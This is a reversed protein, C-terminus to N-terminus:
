LMGTYAAGEGYSQAAALELTPMLRRHLADHKLAYNSPSVQIPQRQAGCEAFHPREIPETRNPETQDVM